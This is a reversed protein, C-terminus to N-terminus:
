VAVIIVSYTKEKGTTNHITISTGNLTFWQNNSGTDKTDKETLSVGIIENIGYADLNLTSYSSKPVTYNLVIIQPCTAKSGTRVSGLSSNLWCVKNMKDYPIKGTIVADEADSSMYTCYGEPKFEVWFNEGYSNHKYGMICNDIRQTRSFIAYKPMRSDTSLSGIQFAAEWSASYSLGNSSITLGGISGETSTIKGDVELGTSDVKMVTKKNSYLEFGSSQLKWGFTSSSNGYAKDAKNSVDASIQTATQQLSSVNSEITTVSDDLNDVKNSIDAVNAVIGNATQQLSSVNSQITAISGNLGDVDSELADVKGRISSVNSTMGELSQQFSTQKNEIIEVNSEIEKLDDKKAYANLIIEGTELNWYSLGDLSSLIGAKIVNATLSGTKIFNAVITGDQTIATEYPGNYGNSSFGLGGINWRWVNVAKTIDENDLILLEYPTGDEKTRTVICGGSNGTILETAKLIANSLILPFKDIKEQSTKIEEAIENFRVALNSKAEGLTISKYKEDLVSYTTKIVKMKTTIGLVSHRITVTDCLSLREHVASYEKQKWLPEFAITITESEVGLPHNKIWSETKTRLADETIKESEGFEDTMNKIYVKDNQLITNSIPLVSEPLTVVKKEGSKTDDFVAYPLIHTYTDTIDSEHTFKTLNKGYEIFVGRDAGRSSHFLVNFNDWEFEGGFLDLISGSSGGLMSRIGKPVDCGFDVSKSIDTQFTFSHSISAHNLIYEGCQTASANQLSFPVVGITSLDYSIHNANISIIGNIPKSIKYIRFAQNKALDNPKAFIINEKKLDNYFRGNIPYKLTLEYIGNREEIVECSTAETLVGIGFTTFTKTVATFLIPIM